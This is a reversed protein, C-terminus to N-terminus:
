GEELPIADAGCRTLIRAAEALRQEQEPGDEHVDVSVLIDGKAVAQDYFRAQEDEIGRGVLSGVLTGAVGGALIPGIALIGLGGTTVVGMASVLAGLAGGVVGSKVIGPRDTTTVDGTADHRLAGFHKEKGRESCVVSIQEKRFGAEFLEEIALDAGEVNAFIGARIPKLQTQQSM